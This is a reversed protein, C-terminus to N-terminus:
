IIAIYISEFIDDTDSESINTEAKSISYFTDHKKKDDSETKKYVLVVATLLKFGKIQTM